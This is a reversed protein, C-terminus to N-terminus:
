LLIDYKAEIPKLDTQEGLMLRMEIEIRRAISSVDHLGRRVPELLERRGEGARRLGM